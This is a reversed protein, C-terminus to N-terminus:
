TLVGARREAMSEVLELTDRSVAIAYAREDPALEFNGPNTAVKFAEALLEYAMAMRVKSGLIEDDAPEGVDVANPEPAEDAVAVKERKKDLARQVRVALIVGAALGYVGLANGGHFLACGSLAVVCVIFVVNQILSLISLISLVRRVITSQM